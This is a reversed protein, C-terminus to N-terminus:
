AQQRGIWSGPLPQSPKYPPIKRARSQARISEPQIYSLREARQSRLPEGLEMTTFVASWQDHSYGISLDCHHLEVEALRRTLLQSAPFRPSGLVRVQYRWAQDPLQLAVTRLAMASGALDEVLEKAGTAASNAIDATRAQPSAYAPRDQGARAGVLLNRMADAGRALHALIHARSWGPLLSRARLDPETMIRADDILRQTATDLEDLVKRQAADVGRVKSITAPAVPPFLDPPLLRHVSTWSWGFPRGSRMIVASGPKQTRDKIPGSSPGPALM